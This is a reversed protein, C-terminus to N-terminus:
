IAHCGSVKGVCELRFGCAHVGLAAGTGLHVEHKKFLLTVKPLKWMPVTLVSSYVASLNANGDKVQKCFSLSISLSLSFFM